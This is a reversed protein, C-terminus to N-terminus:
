GTGVIVVPLRFLEVWWRGVEVIAAIVMAAQEFVIRNNWVWLGISLWIQVLDRVQHAEDDVLITATIKITQALTTM